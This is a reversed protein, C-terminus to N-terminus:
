PAPTSCAGSGTGALAMTSMGPLSEQTEVDTVACVVSDLSVAAGTVSGWCGSSFGAPEAEAGLDVAGGIVACCPTGPLNVNPDLQQNLWSSGRLPKMMGQAIGRKRGQQTQAWSRCLGGQLWRVQFHRVEQSHRVEQFYRVGQSHRVEQFHRVGQCHRVEQFHRVEPCHRGGTGTSSSSSSQFCSLIKSLTPTPVGVSSM